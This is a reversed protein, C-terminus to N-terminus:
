SASLYGSSALLAQIIRINFVLKVLRDDAPSDM